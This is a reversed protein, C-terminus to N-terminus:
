LGGKSPQIAEREGNAHGKIIRALHSASNVIQVRQTGSHRAAPRGTQESPSGNRRGATANCRGLTDCGPSPPWCFSDVIWHDTRGPLQAGLLIGGELFFFFDLNDPPESSSAAALDEQPSPHTLLSKM